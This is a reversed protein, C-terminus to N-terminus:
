KGGAKLAARIAFAALALAMTRAEGDINEFEGWGYSRVWVGRPMDDTITVSGDPNKPYGATLAWDTYIALQAGEPVLMLAASEYAGCDLFKLFRAWLWPEPHIAKAAEELLERQQEPSAQEMRSSLTM